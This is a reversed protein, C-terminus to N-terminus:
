ADCNVVGELIEDNSLLSNLETGSDVSNSSHSITENIPISKNGEGILVAHLASGNNRSGDNLPIEYDTVAKGDSDPKGSSNPM